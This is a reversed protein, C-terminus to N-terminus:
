EPHDAFTLGRLHRAEPSSGRTANKATGSASAGDRYFPIFDEDKPSM